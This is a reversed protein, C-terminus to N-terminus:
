GSIMENQLYRCLSPFLWSLTVAANHSAAFAQPYQASSFEEEFRGLQNTVGSVFLFPQDICLRILGHTTEVSRIEGPLAKSTFRELALPDYKHYSRNDLVNVVSLAVQHLDAIVTPKNSSSNPPVVFRIPIGTWTAQIDSSDLIKRGLESTVVSEVYEGLEAYEDSESSERADFVFVDSGVVVNGACQPLPSACTGFAVVLAGEFEGCGAAECLVQQKHYSSSGEHDRGVLDEICRVELRIGSLEGVIRPSQAYERPSLLRETVLASPSASFKQKIDRTHELVSVLATAEWWKNALVVIKSLMM